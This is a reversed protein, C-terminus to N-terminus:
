EFKIIVQTNVMEFTERIEPFNRASIFCSFITFPNWSRTVVKEFNNFFFQTVKVDNGFVKTVNIILCTFKKCVTAVRSHFDYLKTEIVSSTVTNVNWMNVRMM